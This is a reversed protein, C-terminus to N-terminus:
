EPAGGLVVDRETLDGLLSATSTLVAGDLPYGLARTGGVVGERLTEGRLLRELIEAALPTLELYRVEHDADRYALLATPERAPVDRSDEDAHLRHVAHDYRCLRVAADFRVARDLELSLGEGAPPRAKQALGVGTSRGQADAGAVDFASLEHRALDAMYSPVAPDGAWRPSAWAVFEFAVDRLYHSRPAESDIFRCVWADFAAELRAATRPIEARVARAIGGRILKRYLLLRKDSAGSLSALDAGSLGLETLFAERDAALRREADPTRVLEIMADLLSAFRAHDDAPAPLEPM